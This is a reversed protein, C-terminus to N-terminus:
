RASSLKWIPLGATNAPKMIPESIFKISFKKEHPPFLKEWMNLLKAVATALDLYNIGNEHAYVLASVAEKEPTEFIPGTGLGVISIKDGTKKNTRYRM